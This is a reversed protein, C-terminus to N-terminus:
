RLDSPQFGCELRWYHRTGDQAIFSLFTSHRASVAAQYGLSPIVTPSSGPTYHWSDYRGNYIVIRADARQSSIYELLDKTILKVEDRKLTEIWHARYGARLQGLQGEFDQNLDVALVPDTCLRERLEQLVEDLRRGEVEPGFRLRGNVVKDYVLYRPKFGPVTWVDDCIGKAATPEPPSPPGDVVRIKTSAAPIDILLLILAAVIFAAAGKRRM